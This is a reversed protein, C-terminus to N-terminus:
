APLWQPPEVESVEPPGRRVAGVNQFLYGTVTIAMATHGLVVSIQEGPYAAQRLDRQAESQPGPLSAYMLALGNLSVAYTNAGGSYNVASVSRVVARYGAPVTYAITAITGSVQLFRTTYVPFPV